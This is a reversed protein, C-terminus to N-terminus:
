GHSPYTRKKRMLDHFKGLIINKLSLEEFPVPMANKIVGCFNIFLSSLSSSILEKM